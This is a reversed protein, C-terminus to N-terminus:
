RLLACKTSSLASTAGSVSCTVVFSRLLMPEEFFCCYRERPSFFRLLDTM